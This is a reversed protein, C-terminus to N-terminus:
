FFSLAAPSKIANKSFLEGFTVNLRFLIFYSIERRDYSKQYKCDPARLRTNSGKARVKVPIVPLGTVSTGARIVTPRLKGVSFYASQAGTEPQTADDNQVSLPHLFTSHKDHCGDVKCFSTKPGLIAYHGPALTISFNKREYLNTDKASEEQESIIVNLYGTLLNAYRAYLRNRSSRPVPIEESVDEGTHDPNHADAAFSSM